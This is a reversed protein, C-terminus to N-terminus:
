KLPKAPNGVVTSGPPVDRIVVAGLGITAGAGIRVQNLVAAAPAVWAREGIHASGGLMAHAIVLANEGVVVNHAVHVLNDIRAGRAIRTDGLAGRDVCTNSGIEVGEEIVVRGLHPFRVWEGDVGQELGFGPLGIACGSGIRVFGEITSHAICTNPGIWSNEGIITDSGIVVGASLVASESIRASPHIAVSGVPWETETLHRFFEEVVLSFALKPKECSIAVASCEALPAEPPGILLSGQFSAIRDPHAAAAKSSIWSLSGPLADRDPRVDRVEAQREVQQAWDIRGALSRSELFAVIEEIRAM